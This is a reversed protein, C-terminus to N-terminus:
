SKEKKSIQKQLALNIAELKKIEKEKEIIIKHLSAIENEVENGPIFENLRIKFDSLVNMYNIFADYPSDFPNFYSHVEGDSFVKTSMYYFHDSVQLYNWDKILEEDSCKQMQNTLNYLKEFAEKQLSNGLWATLDREEDAWSIPNPVSVASIPQLEEIVESPTALKLTPHKAIKIVLSEIFNFIGTDKSQRGGISEYSLFLNVVEDKPNLNELWNVFKEATLPYDVWNTNAFRFAIDDSLKFNRMLVKLRPNLANVYVYNPSKWGLVQKAGETLMAKYGMEAVHAGIEDSYIMETNRFVMPQVGFLEVIKQNHLKVQEEFISKDKLSSLSHSYTESLFEVCGTKVLKQFSEIVEPAYLQFQELALGTISFSVKFSRGLQNALKLLLKNTPLYSKMAIKHMISENTFDDYYYHDNGIDFFRYRRHRFPQHIQFFLCVTKM